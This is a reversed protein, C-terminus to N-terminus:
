QVFDWSFGTIDYITSKSNWWLVSTNGIVDAGPDNPITISGGAKITGDALKDEYSGSLTITVNDYWDEERWDFTLVTGYVNTDWQFINFSYNWWTDKIARRSSPELSGSTFVTTAGNEAGKVVRLRFEPEGSIWDEVALLAANTFKMRKVKLLEGDNRDSATTAMIPSWASTGDINIARVKYWYKTNATLNADVYNNDNTPTTAIKVFDYGYMRWVEYGSDDAVDSWQLILSRAQGHSLSLTSPTSPAVNFRPASTTITPSESRLNGNRDVRESIGVVIVPFDPEVKTNLQHKVGNIDYATVETFTKEDYDVPIFAVMPTYKEPEWSECHIPISVQLNPFTEKIKNFFSDVDTSAVGKSKYIGSSSKANKALISKISNTSKGLQINEFKNVLIDYDGDFKKLAENKLTQKMETSNLSAALIRAYESLLQNNESFESVAVSADPQIIVENKECSTLTITAIAFIYFIKKM